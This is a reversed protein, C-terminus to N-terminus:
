RAAYGVATLVALPGLERLRDLQAQNKVLLAGTFGLSNVPIDAFSEQSRPVACMWQRTVLLNYAGLPETAAPTQILNLASLLAQYQELLTQAVTLPQTFDLADLPAIAHRYPLKLNIGATELMLPELPLHSGDPVFPLPVIQLHKHQQSAGAIRGGNYFGLGDMESLGIALAQFDALGLLSDQSAFERTVILIHHDMVNFKNLLVLHTPSLDAVFLEPEYPLFPNFNPPRDRAATEKRQINALVRVLFRLNRDEVWEYTTNIPQLAGCDLALQTQQKVKPWLTGPSLWPTDLASSPDQVM